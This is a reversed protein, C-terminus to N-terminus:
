KKKKNKKNSKNTSNSNQGNKPQFRSSKQAPEESSFLALLEEESYKPPLPPVLNDQNKNKNKNLKERMREKMLTIQMKKKLENETAGVNMNKKNMGTMQSFIEQMNGMGPMNKMKNLMEMGEAILESEKIEGSKVKSEIKDGVNKVINMLKTPDKLMNKIIDQADTVNSPDLNLDKATEEAFEMALKGLKGQMLGNLHEHIANPSPMNEGFPMDTNTSENKNFVDQMNKFTEELKLKLNDADMSEFIKAANGLDSSSHVSGIVSYSILQLYKWITEKHKETVSNDMWIQKFVISPLFETDINDDLSFISNNKYLIDFFREPFVKVCHNFVYLTQKNKDDITININVNWWKNILPIYEPFSISMDSVFDNIIKYFEEPCKISKKDSHEESM